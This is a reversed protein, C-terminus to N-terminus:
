QYPLIAWKPSDTQFQEKDPSLSWLKEWADKGSYASANIDYLYTLAAMAIFRYSHDAVLDRRWSNPVAAFYQPFEQVSQIWNSSVSPVTPWRYAEIVYVNANAGLLMELRFPAMFRLLNTTDYGYHKAMGLNVLMFHEEWPSTAAELSGDLKLPDQVAEPIGQSWQGIPSPQQGTRSQWYPNGSRTSRGWNWHTARTNDTLTVNQVGEWMALNNAIKDKFYAQEPQSDPSVFGAQLLAKFGWADGRVNTHNIYGASGQRAYDSGFGGVKNGAIYAGSYQTEEMYWYRGTLLYALFAFSPYHAISIGWGDGNITGTNIKDAAYTGATVDTLDTLTVTQRADISVIRGLTEVSQSRLFTDGSGAATDAERFHFPIRGALDANGLVAEYMQPDMTYLYVMDWTTLPGIWPSAGAQGIAKSYNGVGNTNGDLTKDVAAWSSEWATLLSPAVTITTDYNAIAKTSTLYRLNHDINIGGPDTGLWFWKV